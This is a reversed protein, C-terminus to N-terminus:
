ATTFLKVLTLQLLLGGLVILLPMLRLLLRPTCGRALRATIVMSWLTALLFLGPLSCAKVIAFLTIVQGSDRALYRLYIWAGYTLLLTLLFLFLTARRHRYYHATRTPM